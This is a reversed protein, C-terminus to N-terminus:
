AGWPFGQSLSGTRQLVLGCVKHYISRARELHDEGWLVAATGLFPLHVVERGTAHAHPHVVGVLYPQGPGGGWSVEM